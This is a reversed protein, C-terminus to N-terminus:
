IAFSRGFLPFSRSVGAKIGREARTPAPVRLRPTVAVAVVLVLSVRGVAPWPRRSWCNFKRRASWVARFVKERVMVAVLLEESM